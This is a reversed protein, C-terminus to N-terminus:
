EGGYTTIQADGSIRLTIPYLRLAQMERQLIIPDLSNDIPLISLPIETPFAFFIMSTGYEDNFKVKFDCREGSEFAKTLLELGDRYGIGCHITIEPQLERQQFMFEKYGYATDLTTVDVIDRQFSPGEISEIECVSIYEGNYFISLKTSSQNTTRDWHMEHEVIDNNEFTSVYTQWESLDPEDLTRLKNNDISGREQIKKNATEALLMPSITIVAGTKATRKFFEGRSIPKTFFDKIFGM